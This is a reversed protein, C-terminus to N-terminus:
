CAGGRVIRTGDAVVAASEVVADGSVTARAGIRADSAVVCERLIAGADVRVREWLVADQVHAGPGISSGAGIVARPGVRARAEVRVGPGIVAPGEISAEAAVTADDAMFATGRACGVPALPTRVRGDLLDMQALRYATPSGIDQWYAPTWWAFCPVGEAILAPFVEREISVARDRPIRSLLEADLVYVGANVTDTTVPEDPTPKERFHRIRGDPDTEVLGYARPDAVRTVLITLRARRAEHFRAMATLDADTLIDGNLIYLRGRALDAANRVGGGTGLPEKEVVYRLTTGFMEGGLATRIDEVRYSCALIVDDIGHQGLLALQYALFPRNLLPVVPKARVLTL